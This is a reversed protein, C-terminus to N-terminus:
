KLIGRFPPRWLNRWIKGHEPYTKPHKKNNFHPAAAHIKICLTEQSIGGERERAMRHMCQSFAFLGHFVLYSLLDGGWWWRPLESCLTSGLGHEPVSAAISCLHCARHPNGSPISVLCSEPASSHTPAARGPLCSCDPSLLAPSGPGSLIILSSQKRSLTQAM